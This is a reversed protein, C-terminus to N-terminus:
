STQFIQINRTVNELDTASAAKRAKVEVRLGVRVVMELLRESSFVDVRGQMLESVRGQTVGLRKAAENRTLELEAIRDRVARLLASRFQMTEAKGPTEEIADWVSAFREIRVAGAVGMGLVSGGRLIFGDRDVEFVRLFM